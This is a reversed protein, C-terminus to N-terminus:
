NGVIHIRIADSAKELQFVFHIHSSALWTEDALRRDTSDDQPSAACM